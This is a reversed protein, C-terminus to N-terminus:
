LAYIRGVLVTMDDKIDDECNTKAMELIENAIEQPNVKEINNIFECFVEESEFTDTIGDSCLVVTDGASLVVKNVMPKIEKVIGVPMSECKIISTHTIHKVFGVSAGLKIFDAIGNKLDVVCLDLASFMDDENKLNLLNNVVNLILENDFGAKYFNEVLGLTLSSINEAKEGNGMGDCVAMIFKDNELRILSYCDGSVENALKPTGATGFVIEFKPANKLTLMTFGNQLGNNACISMPLGLVKSVIKSIKAKKECDKKIALTVNVINPQQQYILAESCIINNYNLVEMLKNEKENEFVINKGVEEALNKMVLSIGSLQQAVLVKGSDVSNMFSAYQKLQKSNENIISVLGNIKGCRSTLFPPIDLLTIEERELSILILENFVNKIEREYIRHCKAREPCNQCLKESIESMILLSAQEKTLGGKIMTRFVGDMESFVESLSLFRKKLSDRNRNVINRMALNVASTFKLSLADIWSQPILAFIVGASAVPLLSLYSFDYYLNLGFGILAELAIVAISLVFRKSHKFPMCILAYLIFPAVFVANAGNLISGIGWASAFLLSFNSSYALLLILLCGVFKVPEFVFYSFENLGCSLAMVFIFCSIIEIVKLRSTIGRVVIASFFCINSLLFLIGIVITSIITLLPTGNVINLYVFASQSILAYIVLLYPKIPKKIKLHLLYMLLIVTATISANILGAVSFNALSFALIYLPCVVYVRQNCWVLAYLFGFAFPYIIGLIGANSLIYFM